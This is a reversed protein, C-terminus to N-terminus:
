ILMPFGARLPVLGINMWPPWPISWRALFRTGQLAPSLARTSNRVVPSRGPATSQSRSHDPRLLPPLSRLLRFGFPPLHRRHLPASAGAERCRLDACNRVDLVYFKSIPKEAVCVRLVSRRSRRTKMEPRARRQESKQEAGSALFATEVAHELSYRSSEVRVM